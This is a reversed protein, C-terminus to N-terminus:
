RQEMHECGSNYTCQRHATLGGFKGENDKVVLEVTQFPDQAQIEEHEIAFSTLRQPLHKSSGKKCRQEM